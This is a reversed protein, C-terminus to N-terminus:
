FFNKKHKFSFLSSMFNPPQPPSCTSRELHLLVLYFFTLNLKPRNTIGPVERLAWNMLEINNKDVSYVEALKCSLSLLM